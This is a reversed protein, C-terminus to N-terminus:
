DIQGSTLGGIPITTTYVKRFYHDSYPGLEVDQLTYYKADLMMYAKEPTRILLSIKVNVVRSMMLGAYDAAVYRDAEGNNDIDEGYRIRMADVGEILVDPHTYIPMNDTLQACALEHNPTVFLVSDVKHGAPSQVALCNFMNNRNMPYSVTITDSNNVSTSTGAIIKADYPILELTNNFTDQKNFNSFIRYDPNRFASFYFLDSSGRRQLQKLNNAVNFGKSHNLMVSVFGSVLICLIILGMLIPIIASGRNRHAYHKNM